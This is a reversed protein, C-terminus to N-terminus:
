IEPFRKRKIVMRVVWAAGAVLIAILVVVSYPIVFFSITKEDVIDGYGRNVEATATYKGFMGKSLILSDRTRVSEPLAFWPELPIKAVIKGFMNKVTIGGYPNLHVNGTNEYMLRVPIEDGSFIRQNNKATFSILQGKSVTDGSITVFILTAIQGILTAGTYARDNVDVGTRNQLARVIVSGFRGGPTVNAPLSITVPIIARDGHELVFENQNVHLFNKLTTNSTKEGLLTVTEEPNDSPGFDEFSIQFFQAKGTRNEVTLRIEKVEGPSVISEAKAPGVIFRNEVPAGSNKEMTLALLSLPAFISTLCIIAISKKIM